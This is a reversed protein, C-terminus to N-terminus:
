KFLLDARNQVTVLLSRFVSRSDADSGLLRCPVSGLVRCPVSGLVSAGVWLVASSAGVWSCLCRGLFAFCSPM